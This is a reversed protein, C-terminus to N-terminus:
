LDELLKDSPYSRTYSLFEDVAHTPVSSKSFILTFDRMMKEERISLLKLTGYKGEKIASWRSVISIGMGNEVTHKIAVTSGIVTTIKMNQVSIGHADLYKEIIQRTGSGEERFIFPEKLLELISVNKRKAWPHYSPVIVVLEDKILPESLIKQGSIDGEVLGFDINGSNLLDIIRKTNGVRMHLKIKPRTKKFDSIITPLLHNGITTSAGISISGKVLGTLEGIQKEADAYLSLINKAYKYLVEGAKTLTVNSSSRDFLKTEYLEELAQIQLSVAPQTLHIIESAKSFSRTEAVTCFVKLKHDEM